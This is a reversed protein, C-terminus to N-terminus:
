IKMAEATITKRFRPKLGLGYALDVKKGTKESLYREARLLQFISPTKEFEALIDLDSKVKQKGKAYSGFVAISSIGFRRRLEKKCQVLMKKISPLGMASNQDKSSLFSADSLAVGAARGKEAIFCGIGALLPANRM